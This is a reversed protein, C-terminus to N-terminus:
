VWFHLKNKRMEAEKTRYPVALTIIRFIGRCKPGRGTCIVYTKGDDRLTIGNEHWQLRVFTGPAYSSTKGWNPKLHPNM